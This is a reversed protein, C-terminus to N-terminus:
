DLLARRVPEVWSNTKPSYVGFSSAFEWYTWGWGYKEAKDRFMRTYIERSKEDANSISGFEGVHMPYGTKLNWQAAPELADSIMKEQAPSCCVPGRPFQPMYSTGQHTFPFPVYNHIPVILNRDPPLQLRGLSPIRNGSPGIMVTRDPNTKRIISLAEAALKNWPEGELPGTPENLIEFILKPSKDKYRQAIQAWINLFRMEVVAPDVAFENPVLKIGSLQNYHHVNVIVYVGRALLSDIVSDVRAAFFDDLKADATPAAHNSWRVPVRVTEFVEAAKAIFAPDLRVRWDGERPAELMNGM